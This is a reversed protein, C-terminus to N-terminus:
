FPRATSLNTGKLEALKRRGLAFRENMTLKQWESGLTSALMAHVKQTDNVGPYQSLDIIVGSQTGVQGNAGSLLAANSLAAGGHNGGTALQKTLYAKSADPLPYTKAFGEPDTKRHLVLSPRMNAPIRHAAMAQDVQTEMAANDGAAKYERLSALEPMVEELKAAKQVLDVIKKSAGAVDEVELATLLAELKTMADQGAELKINIAKEIDATTAPVGLKAALLAIIKPDMTDREVGSGVSAPLRAFASALELAIMNAISKQELAKIADSSSLKRLTLWESASLDRAACAAPLSLTKFWEAMVTDSPVVPAKSSSASNAEKEAQDLVAFVSTFVTDTTATLPLNIMRRMIGVLEDVEVGPPPSEAGASWRQLKEIEVRLDAIGTTEPLKLIDRLEEFADEPTCPQNYPDYYYGAHVKAGQRSAAMSVMGQIFPDNTAAVSSLYTGINKGSVPDTADFYLTMSCWKYKGANIYGKLPELFRTFSWFQTKGTASDNRLELEMVWGQSPAGTTPITGSTAAQESAHHFDWPIVDYMGSNIQEASAMPAGPKYSPHAHLNAIAEEFKARTLEFPGVVHGQWEGEQGIQVWKAPPMEAQVDNAAAIDLKIAPARVELGTMRIPKALTITRHRYM